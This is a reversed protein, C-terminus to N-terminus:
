KAQMKKKVLVRHYWETTFKVSDKINYTPRWNLIQRAKNINLQLNTQEYFNNKKVKMKGQGWFM